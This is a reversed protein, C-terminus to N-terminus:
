ETEGSEQRKELRKYRRYFSILLIVVATVLVAMTLSGALGVNIDPASSNM